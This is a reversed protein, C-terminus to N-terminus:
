FLPLCSWSGTSDIAVDCIVPTMAQIEDQQFFHFLYNDSLCVFVLRLRIALQSSPDLSWTANAGGSM